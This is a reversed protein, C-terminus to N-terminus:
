KETDVDVGFSNQTIISFEIVFGFVLWRKNGDKIQYTNMSIQLIM